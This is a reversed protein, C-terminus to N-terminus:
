NIGFSRDKVSKFTNKLEIYQTWILQLLKTLSLLILYALTYQHTYTPLYMFLSKSGSDM